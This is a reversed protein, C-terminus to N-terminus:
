RKEMRRRAAIWDQLGKALDVNDSMGDLLDVADWIDQLQRLFPLAGKGGQEYESAVADGLRMIQSALDDVLDDFEDWGHLSGSM